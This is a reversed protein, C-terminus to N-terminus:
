FLASAVAIKQRQTAMLGNLFNLMTLVVVTGLVTRMVTATAEFILSVTLFMAQIGAELLGAVQILQVATSTFFEVAQKLTVRLLQTSGYLTIAAMKITSSMIPAMKM